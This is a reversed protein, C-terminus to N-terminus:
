NRRGPRRLPNPSAQYADFDAGTAFRGGEVERATVGYDRDFTMQVTLVRNCASGVIEKRLTYGSVGDDLEQTLESRPDIRVRIVEGCHECQVYLVLPEADQEPRHGFRKWGRLLQRIM